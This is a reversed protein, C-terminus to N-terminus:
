SKLLFEIIILFKSILFIFFGMVEYQVRMLEVIQEDFRLLFICYQIIIDFGPM